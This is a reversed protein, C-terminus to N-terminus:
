FRRTWGLLVTDVHPSVSETGGVGLAATASPGKFTGPVYRGYAFQIDNRPDYAWTFGATAQHRPNPAFLNFSVSDASADAAPRRGYLYGARLTWRPTAQWAVAVKYNTLNRWNFGSGNRSGLPDNGPDDISALVGNSLARLDGYFIRQVDGGVTWNPAPRLAFGISLNEPVDFEGGNAILGRYKEFKQMHIRTAYAAGLDLWPTMRGFWGVRFGAGVSEDYGRNSVADPHKSLGEFAQFGYAKFRQYVLLPSLGFSHQSNAQWAVTPAVILQGLDFGLKGCGLFFNGPRNGCKAPNANTGDVGTDDPYETNLGGNGYVTIGTSWRSDLRRAYGMEPLPFYSNRSTSAFDYVANSAGRREIRRYPMFSLVGLDLRTETFSLKAPNSAGAFADMGMATATGASQHALPGYGLIFYGNGARAPTFASCAAIVVALLPALQRRRSRDHARTPFDMM